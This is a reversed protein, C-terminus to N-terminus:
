IPEFSMMLGRDATGLLAMMSDRCCQIIRIDSFNRSRLSDFGLAAPHSALVSDRASHAGGLSRSNLGLLM